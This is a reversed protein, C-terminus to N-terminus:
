SLDNTNYYARGGTMDAFTAMTNITDMHRDKLGRQADAMGAGGRRMASAPPTDAASFGVTVLGRADIPYLAVNAANLQQFVREFEGTFSRASPPDGPKDVMFAFTGTVWVLAKRGPIGGYAGAIARFADLTSEIAFDQQMRAATAEMHEMFDQLAAAEGEVAATAAMDGGPMPDTYVANGNEGAMADVKGRVKQLARVLVVPDTTFAHIVKIGGRTFLLLATLENTSVSQSLFKIIQARARTQDLFATNISDLVIINLRRPAFNAPQQNTFVQDPRAALRAVPTAVATVEEFTAVKREVGNELVTFDDRTLGAVHAGSHDTVLAPVLVLETRATFTPAPKAPEPPKQGSNQPAAAAAGIGVITALVALSTVKKM